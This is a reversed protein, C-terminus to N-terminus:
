EGDQLSPIPDKYMQRAANLDEYFRDVVTQDSCVLSQIYGIFTRIWPLMETADWVEISFIATNDNVRNVIGHRKELMLRTFVYDTPSEAYITMSLKAPKPTNPISVGWAHELRKLIKKKINDYQEISHNTPKIGKIRDLRMFFTRTKDLPTYAIYRRGSQVSHYFRVPIIETTEIKEVSQNHDQNSNKSKSFYTVIVSKHERMADALAIVFDAYIVHYLYHHRFLFPGSQVTYNERAFRDFLYSGIVGLADIEMFLAIADRWCYLHHLDSHNRKYIDKNGDKARILIGMDAYENLKARLRSKDLKDKKNSEDDPNRYGTQDLMLDIESLSMWKTESLSDLIFFHLRIDNVRFSHIGYFAFLPNKCVDRADMSLFSHTYRNSDISRCLYDKLLQTTKELTSRYGSNNYFDARTKDGFLSLERLWKRVTSFDSIRDCTAM